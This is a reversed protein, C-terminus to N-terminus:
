RGHQQRQVESLLSSSAGDCIVEQFLREIHLSGNDYSAAFTFHGLIPKIGM